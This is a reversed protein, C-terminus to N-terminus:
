QYFAIFYLSWIKFQYEESSSAYGLLFCSFYWIIIFILMLLIDAFIYKLISNM